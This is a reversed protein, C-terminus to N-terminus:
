ASTRQRDGRRARLALMAGFWLGYFFILTAAASVNAATVSGLQKRVVIWLDAAFGAPLTVMAALVMWSAFRHFRETDEGGEVIRHYAPPAMLFVVTVAIACTAALHMDKSSGPLSEYGQMLTMALQFGLLAQAGPLVVRAETLVQTIKDELKMEGGEEEHPSRHGFVLAIGYWLALAVAFGAIGLALATGPGRTWGAHYLDLGLAAAFPLLALGVVNLTFRHLASTDEGREVLRHRSAPLLILGIVGLLLGLGALKLCQNFRPLKDFAPEFFARYQFGLLVQVGLVLIRAEDLANKVKTRLSM